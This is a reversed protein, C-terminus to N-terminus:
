TPSVVTASGAHEAQPATMMSAVCAAATAAGDSSFCAMVYRDPRLLLYRNRYGIEFLRNLAGDHDRVTQHGADAFPRVRQPVICVRRAGIEDWLPQDVGAFAADVDESLTLLSFGPGLVTDLPIVPGTERSVRPQPFMRGIISEKGASQDAIVLGATIAPKPKFKMELFYSRVPPLLGALRFFLDQGRSRRWNAPTMVKGIRVALDIMAEAHARREQEYSDLIAPAAGGRIVAALKWGLNAADRVGSNMGQGAYPPSLHAADGLLFIRDQQWRDAVRAHFAYVTAREIAIDAAVGHEGLLKRVFADETVTTPQEGAALLFEWRRSGHPGPVTIAPRRHDAFVVTNRYGDRDGVTDVVLWRQEFSTGVMPIGLSKRVFSGAGDCGALYSARISREGMPNRLTAIVGDRTQEVSTLECDFHLRVSDHTEAHERLACELLPQRIGNRRPFGFETATAHVRAFMRGGPSYYDIGYDLCTDALIRDAAGLWQMTRMGEDDLSVARPEQVTQSNREIVATRVESCGLVNALTLGTPGAGVILVDVETVPHLM